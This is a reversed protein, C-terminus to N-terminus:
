PGAMTDLLAALDRPTRAMPGMVGLQHLFTDGQADSPVLGFTPRMGYVNNWGAPNRLSGMMDSGDAVSVM